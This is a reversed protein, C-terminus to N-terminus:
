ENNSPIYIVKGPYAQRNGSSTIIWIMDKLPRVDISAFGDTFYVFSTYEKRNANYYEIAPSFITGGRGHVKGEFKGSYQYQATIRTDCELIDIIAGAKYIHNIESFFDCLEQNSVSGSTDIAVLIKTKKKHRIGSSDPFRLSEKKRTKKLTIDNITGICRRFYQRWNFVPKKQKFLDKIYSALEGPITGQLKQVQEATHKAIHDIQQEILQKEADSIGQFDKWTSHDGKTNKSSKQNQTDSDKGGSDNSANGSSQNSQSSIKINDYYFKTGKKYDLGFDAADIADDPLGTIYSNVEADAAVNFLEWDAFSERMTLHKFCIHIVEHKLIALQQTDTLSDWFEKNVELRCDIGNRSVGATPVQDSYSKSLSLLFLGYFPDTM